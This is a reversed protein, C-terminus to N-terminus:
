HLKKKVGYTKLKRKIRPFIGERNKKDQIDFYKYPSTIKEALAMVILYAQGDAIAPDDKSVISCPYQYETQLCNFKLEEGFLVNLSERTYRWYDYPHAHIPFTNHTSTFVIGKPRMIKSIEATAIWPNRVHEYVSCSILVDFSNKGFTDSLSHIDSVIDVDLGEQFDTGIYESANPVWHKRITSACSNVRRTGLELVRPNEKAQAIKLFNTLIDPPSTM